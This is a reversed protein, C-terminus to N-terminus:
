DESRASSVDQMLEQEDLDVYPIGLRSAYRIFELRHMGLLEAARGSSVERRRYLELILYEKLKDEVRGQVPHLLDTLESELEVTVTSM